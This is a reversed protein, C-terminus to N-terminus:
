KASCILSIKRNCSSKDNDFISLAWLLLSTLSLIVVQMLLVHLNRRFAGNQYLFIVTL